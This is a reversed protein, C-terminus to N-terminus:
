LKWWEPWVRVKKSHLRIIQKEAEPIDGDLIDKIYIGAANLAKRKAQNTQDPFYVDKLKTKFHEKSEPVGLEEMLLVMALLFLQKQREFSYGRRTLFPVDLVSDNNDKFAEIYSQCLEYSSRYEDKSIAGKTAYSFMENLDDIIFQSDRAEVNEFEKGSRGFLTGGDRDYFHDYFLASLLLARNGYPTYDFELSLSSLLRYTLTSNEAKNIASILNYTNIGITGIEILDKLRGRVDVLSECLLQGWKFNERESQAFRMQDAHLWEILGAEDPSNAIDSHATTPLGTTMYDYFFSCLFTGAVLGYRDNGTRNIKKDPEEKLADSLDKYAPKREQITKYLRVNPNSPDQTRDIPSSKSRTLCYDFVIVEPVVEISTMIKSDMNKLAKIADFYAKIEHIDKLWILNFNEEITHREALSSSCGYELAVKGEESANVSFSPDDDILLINIKNM